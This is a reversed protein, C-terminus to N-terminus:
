CTIMHHSNLQSANNPRFAVNAPVNRNPEWRKKEFYQPKRAKGRQVHLKASALALDLITITLFGKKFTFDYWKLSRKGKVSEIQGNTFYRIFRNLIKAGSYETKGTNENRANYTTVFSSM